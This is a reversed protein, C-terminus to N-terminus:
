PIRGSGTHQSSVGGQLVQSWGPLAPLNEQTDPLRLGSFLRAKSSYDIPHPFVEITLRRVNQSLKQLREGTTQKPKILLNM